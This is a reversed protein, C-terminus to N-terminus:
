KDLYIFNKLEKLMGQAAKIVSEPSYMVLDRWVSLITFDLLRATEGYKGWGTALHQYEKGINEKKVQEVNYRKSVLELLHHSLDIPEPLLSEKEVLIEIQRQTLREM